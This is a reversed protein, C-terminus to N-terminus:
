QSCGLYPSAVGDNTLYTECKYGTPCSDTLSPDCVIDTNDTCGNGCVMHTSYHCCIENGSCDNYTACTIAYGTCAPESAVCGFTTVGADSTTQCCTPTAGMPDCYTTAYSGGGCKVGNMPGAEGAAEHAVDAAAETSPSDPLAPSDPHASDQTPASDVGTDVPVVVDVGVVDDCEGQLCPDLTPMDLGLAAACGAVLAAMAVVLAGASAGKRKM